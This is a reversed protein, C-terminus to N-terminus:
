LLSLLCTCLVSSLWGNASETVEYWTQVHELFCSLAAPEYAQLFLIPVSPVPHKVGQPFFHFRLGSLPWLLWCQRPM